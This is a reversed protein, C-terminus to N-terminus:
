MCAFPGKENKDRKERQENGRENGDDEADGVREQEARARASEGKGESARQPTQSTDTIRKRRRSM